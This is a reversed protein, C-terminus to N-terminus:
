RDERLGPQMDREVASREPATTRATIGYDPRISAARPRGGASANAAERAIAVSYSPPDEEAVQPATPSPVDHDSRIGQPSEVVRGYPPPPGRDQSPPAMARVNRCSGRLESHEQDCRGVEKTIIEFVQQYANIRDGRAGSNSHQQLEGIMRMHLATALDLRSLSDQTERLLGPYHARRNDLAQAGELV